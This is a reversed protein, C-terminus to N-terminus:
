AYVECCYDSQTLLNFNNERSKKMFIL